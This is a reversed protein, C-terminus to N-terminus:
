ISPDGYAALEEERSERTDMGDHQPLAEKIHDAWHRAKAKYGEMKNQMHTKKAEMFDTADHSMKDAKDRMLSRTRKGSAPAYLLAVGAGILAGMLFKKM